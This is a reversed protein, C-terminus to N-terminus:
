TIQAAAGTEQHNRTLTEHSPYQGIQGHWRRPWRCRRWALRGSAPATAAVAWNPSGAVCCSPSRRHAPTCGTAGAARPTAPSAPACPRVAYRPAPWCTWCFGSSNPGPTGAARRSAYRCARVRAGAHTAAFAPWWCRISRPAPLVMATRNASTFAMCGSVALVAIRAPSRGISKRRM